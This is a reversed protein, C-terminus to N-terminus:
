KGLCFEKFVRDMVEDNFEKGLVEKIKVLSSQLEFAILEPSETKGLLDLSSGVFRKTDNLLEYHRLHILTAANETFNIHSQEKFYEHINETNLGEKISVWSIHLNSNHVDLKNFISNIKIQGQERKQELDELLDIKNVVLFVKTKKNFYGKLEELYDLNLESDTILVVINAKELTEIARQVGIKEVLDTTNRIGATDFFHFKINNFIVEDDVVDRTTGAVETVISKEKNLLFNMFSSKGMNPEGIITVQYGDKILSGSDYTELLSNLQYGVKLLREQMLDPEMIIIDEAAYDINAELQALIFTLEDELIILQKSLSGELQRLSLQNQNSTESEILSLVSEAQPLDIRGNSFARYTFEGRDSTRAGLDVIESLIKKVIYQSGHCSIEVSPEFTFSRKAEFYTVMVEDIKIKEQSSKLFGYYVRHSEIKKPLFACLRQTIDLSQEGSIRIVSIGALGPATIPSCITDFDRDPNFM